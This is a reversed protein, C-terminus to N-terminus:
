KDHATNSEVIKIEVPINKYTDQSKLNQTFKHFEVDRIHPYTKLEDIFAKIDLFGKNRDQGTNLYYDIDIITINDGSINKNKNYLLNKIIISKPKSMNIANLTNIPYIDKRIVNYLKRLNANNALSLKKQELSDQMIYFKETSLQFKKLLSKYDKKTQEYQFFSNTIIFLLLIGCLLSAYKIIIYNRQLTSIQNLNEVFISKQSSQLDGLLSAYPDDCSYTSSHLKLKEAANAFSLVVTDGCKNDIFGKHYNKTIMINKITENANKKAAIKAYSSLQISIIDTEFLHDSIEHVKIDILAENDFTFEKLLCDTHLYVVTHRHAQKDSYLKITKRCFNVSELTLINIHPTYYFKSAAYEIFDSIESNDSIIATLYQLNNSNQNVGQLQITHILENSINQNELQEAISNEINLFKSHELTTKQYREKGSDLLIRIPFNKHKKIFHNLKSFNKKYDLEVNLEHEINGRHETYLEIRKNTIVVLVKKTKFIKNFLSM